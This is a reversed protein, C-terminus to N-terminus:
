LYCSNTRPCVTPHFPVQLEAYANSPISTAVDDCAFEGTDINVLSAKPISNGKLSGFCTKCVSLTSSTNDCAAPQLCYTVDNFEVVTLGHRPHKGCQPGDKRLLDMNPVDDFDHDDVDCTPCLMLCVACVTKTCCADLHERMAAAAAIHTDM